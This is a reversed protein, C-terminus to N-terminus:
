QAKTDSAKTDSVKTDSAKKDDAKTESKVEPLTVLGARGKLHEEMKLWAVGKTLWEPAAKDKLHFDFFEKMRQMYDKQNPKKVLGHNEGPYELMIVDKGARRLTNFYEVGQTYDVAGDVDNQLMLLPTKVDKAFFVPSNRVYAEWHDNYAGLFRGQSSEFIAQNTSGSNKYVLSYMSIMNTLAAGASAAKFVDTQTILFATQYGGWSHGQLGVRKADVVGTAIAAQLAPLVSEKASVGPDNLRYTIDPNFVAYGHSTYYARNFGGGGVAPQAYSNLGQSLKEYIYVVTPYSKGAQYNAPLFLAGQLKKGDTGVYNVLMAGGGMTYNKEQSSLDTLKRMDSLQEGAVYLDPAAIATEKSLLYVDAKEAKLLRRYSVDDYALRKANGNADLRLFGAKKTWEGYASFYQPKSLDIGKENPDLTIRRQYRVQDRKGDNTVQVAKSGDVAMKWVDWGDSLLVFRSDTSWGFPVVPPKVINHDDEVNIFSTNLNATLNHRKGTAMEISIFHGDDYYLSYRGDNALGFTWSAQKNLLRREGTKLSVAYVDSFRRGDMSSQRQYESDDQALAWDGTLPFNVATLKDDGVRIFKQEAIRYVAAASRKKDAEQQVKQQTPLRKDQYHWLVLNVKEDAEPAAEKKDDKPKKKTEKIGFSIWAFDQSWRPQADASITMDQPFDKLKAPDILTKAFQHNSELRFGLANWLKDEYAKDEIGKLVTLGSGKDNWLLKQYNADGDDLVQSAGTDLTQVVVGNGAKDNADVIYALYRGQHDFEFESVNGINLSSGTKLNKLLLDAGKARAPTAAAGPAAPAAPASAPAAFTDSAKHLAIWGGRENAFAFKAVKEVTTAKGTKLDVLTVKAQVPKKAKKAADQEKKTMHATFAMWQGDDSFEITGAGQGAPFSYEEKGSLNKVVLNADGDAEALRWAAWSGNASIVASSIGKWAAMDAIEVPRPTAPTSAKVDSKAEPKADVKAEVKPEAKTETQAETKKDAKSEEKGQAKSQSKTQSKTAPSSASKKSTNDSIKSTTGSAQAIAEVSALLFSLTVAPYVPHM